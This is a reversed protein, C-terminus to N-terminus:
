FFPQYRPKWLRDYTIGVRLQSGVGFQRTEVVKGRFFFLDAAISLSLEDVLPVLLEHIMSYRLSLNAKTDLPAPFFYTLDNRLRYTMTGRRNAALSKLYESKSQIGLQPNPRGFDNEVLLGLDANPWGPGPRFRWGGVVRLSLQKPNTEGTTKNETPSFETDFLSRIFPQTKRTDMSAPRLTLDIRIDDASEQFDKNEGENLRQMAYALAVGMDTATRRREKSLVFRGSFGAVLANPAIVRSEPVNEYGDNGVVSNLSSWITPREFSFSFLNVHAPDPRLWSAIADIQGDDQVKSRVRRLEGLIFDRITMSQGNDEAVLLGDDPRVDFTRRVRRARRFFGSRGGEFIINTTAVRYYIPDELRHGLVTRANLDIGSTALEGRSDAFLLAKLDAGPMDLVVLEDSTWLWSKVENEHLKGILPPFQDLRRIVAVEAHTQTRVRRAMFSEWMPKSVRGRKTTEDFKALDPHRAVMDPFAPFLLEGRPDKHLAASRLIRHVLATDCATGDTIPIFAHAVAGLFHQQNDPRWHIDLDLRGLGIGNAASRAVLAPTGPRVYPRSPLEVRVRVPEPATRVPLDAIVADIGSVEQAVIANDSPDMNSLVIVATAGLRRLRAVERNAAAIPAEFRYGSLLNRPLRNNITGNVLGLLGIRYGGSEIIVSKRFLSTDSPHVNAALLAISPFETSLKKLESQDLTLEFEFPVLYQYGLEQLAMWDVRAREEHTLGFEGTQHGLDATIVLDAAEKKLDKLLAARAGIGGMNGPLEFMRVDGIDIRNMEGVTWATTDSPWVAGPQEVIMIREGNSNRLRSISVWTPVLDPFSMRWRPNRGMMDYLDPGPRWPDQVLLVSSSVLARVTDLREAEKRRRIVDSLEHGSPEHSPLFVVVGPARWAAHSVLRFTKGEAVAQETLLDHEDQSRSTGLAGLSRGTYLVSVRKIQQQAVAEGSYSFSLLVSWVAIRTLM